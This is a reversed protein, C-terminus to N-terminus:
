YVIATDIETACVYKQLLETAWNITEQLNVLGSFGNITMAFHSTCPMIKTREEDSTPTGIGGNADRLVPLGEINLPGRGIGNYFEDARGIGYKIDGVIADADFGGISFGSKLSVLNVLDVLTNIRYLANGKLIRRALAEASPRYRNPDKGCAKYANRTALIPTIQKIDGNSYFNRYVDIITDIESWLADNSISNEVRCKLVALHLDPCKLRLVEDITISIM